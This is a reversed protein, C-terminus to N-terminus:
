WVHPIIRKRGAAFERYGEIGMLTREEIMIRVVISFVLLLAYVALTAYNFFFLTVGAHATLMGSYAPHRVHRYPGTDIIKHEDIKRVVHSYYRGLTHVAWTRILIGCVLLVFGAAHYLGPGTWLPTFWLASLVTLGHSLAYFERTGYDSVDQKQTADTRSVKLEYLIWLLYVMIVAYDANIFFGQWIESHFAIKRYGLLCIGAILVAPFLYSIIKKM